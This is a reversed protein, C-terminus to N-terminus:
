SVIDEPRKITIMDSFKEFDKLNQTILIANNNRALIAHLSDSKSVGREQAMKKAEEWNEKTIETKKLIKMLFLIQFMEEIEEPAFAKKLEYVIHNSFIITVKDKMIKTFLKTAYNGLPKGQPSYRNEYHDRWICTDIYYSEHM